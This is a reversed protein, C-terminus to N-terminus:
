ASGELLEGLSQGSARSYTGRPYCKAMELCVRLAVADSGRSEVGLRCSLSCSEAQADDSEDDGRFDDMISSDLLVSPAKVELCMYIYICIYADTYIFIYM